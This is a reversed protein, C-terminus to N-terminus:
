PLISSPVFIKKYTHWSEKISSKKSGSLQLVQLILVGKGTGIYIGNSNVKLIEGPSYNFLINEDIIAKWIKVYQDSIWFYSIPWPNFARINRDLQRASMKWNIKAEKKNVKKAYTALSHNQSYLVYKGISLQYLTEIIADKGIQYLKDLLTGTTDYNTIVCQRMNLIPGTDIGDDMKIITIGTKKDGFQIARHIPASGRWLPLLSGHFNICGLKPFSLIKKSLFIGYAVVLIIDCYVLQSNDVIKDLDQSSKPQFVPINHYQAIKKVPSNKIKKGRGSVRDPQTLIGVIVHQTNLIINLFKSSFCSTGAFIIKLSKSTYM